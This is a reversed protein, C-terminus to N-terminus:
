RYRIKWKLFYVEYYKFSLHSILYTFPICCIINILHKLEVSPNLNMRLSCKNIIAFGL